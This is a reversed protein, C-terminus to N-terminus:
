ASEREIIKFNDEIYEITRYSGRDVQIIYQGDYSQNHILDYEGTYREINIDGADGTYWNYKSSGYDDHNWDNVEPPPFSKFHITEILDVLEQLSREDEIVFVTSSSNTILDTYSQIKVQM